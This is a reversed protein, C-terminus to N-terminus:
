TFREMPLSPPRPPRSEGMMGYWLQQGTEANVARVGGAGCAVVLGDAAVAAAKSDGYSFGESQWILQGTSGQLRYLWGDPSAVYVAGDPGVVPSIDLEDGLLAQKKGSEWDWLDQGTGANLARVTCRLHDLLDGADHGFVIKVLYIEGEPGVAPLWWGAGSGM